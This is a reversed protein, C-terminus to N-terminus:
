LSTPAEQLLYSKAMLGTPCTYAHISLPCKFLLVSWEIANHYDVESLHVPNSLPFIIPRENINAM